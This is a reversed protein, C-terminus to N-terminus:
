SSSKHQTNAVYHYIDGVKVFFEENMEDNDVIEITRSEANPAVIDIFSYGSIGRLEDSDHMPDPYDTTIHTLMRDNNGDKYIDYIRDPAIPVKPTFRGVYEVDSGTILPYAELVEQPLPVENQMSDLAEM